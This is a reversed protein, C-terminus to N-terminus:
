CTIRNSAFPSAGVSCSAWLFKRAETMSIFCDTALSMGYRAARRPDGTVTNHKKSLCPMTRRPPSGLMRYAVARLRGLKGRIAGGAM